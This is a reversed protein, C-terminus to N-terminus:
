DRMFVQGRARGVISLGAALVPHLLRSILPNRVDKQINFQSGAFSRSRRRKLSTQLLDNDISMSMSLHSSTALPSDRQLSSKWRPIPRPSFFHLSATSIFSLFPFMRPSRRWMCESCDLRDSSHQGTLGYCISRRWSCCKLRLDMTNRSRILNLMTYESIITLCTEAYSTLESSQLHDEKYESLLKDLNWCTETYINLYKEMKKTFEQGVGLTKEIEITNILYGITQSTLSIFIKIKFLNREISTLSDTPLIITKKWSGHKKMSPKVRQFKM